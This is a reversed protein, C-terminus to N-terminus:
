HQSMRHLQINSTPDGRGRWHAVGPALDSLLRTLPHQLGLDDPPPPVRWRHMAVPLVDARTAASAPQCGDAPAEVHLAADEARNGEDMESGSSSDAESDSESDSAACLVDATLLALTSAAQLDCAMPSGFGSDGAAAQASTSGDQVSPRAGQQRAAAAAEAPRSDGHAQDAAQAAASPQPPPATVAHLWADVRQAAVARAAERLHVPSAAAQRGVPCATLHVAHCLLWAATDIDWRM